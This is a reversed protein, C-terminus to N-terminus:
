ADHKLHVVVERYPKAECVTVHPDASLTQEAAHEADEAQCCFVGREGELSYTVDFARLRCDATSAGSPDEEGFDGVALALKDMLEHVSFSRKRWARLVAVAADRVEEGGSGSFPAVMGESTVEVDEELDILEADCHTCVFGGDGIDSDLNVRPIGAFAAPQLAGHEDRHWDAVLHRVLYGQEHAIMRSGCSRCRVELTMTM